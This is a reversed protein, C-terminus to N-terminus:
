FKTLVVQSLIERSMSPHIHKDREIYRLLDKIDKMYAPYDTYITDLLRSGFGEELLDERGLQKYVEKRTKEMKNAYEPDEKRNFVVQQNISGTIAKLDGKRTKILWAALEKPSLDRFRGEADPADSDHWDPAGKPKKAEEITALKTYYKPDEYLHDRAIEAAIDKSKTHEMEVKIGKDYEPKLEDMGVGHHKAIDEISMGASLGGAVKQEHFQQYSKVHSMM